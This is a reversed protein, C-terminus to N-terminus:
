GSKLQSYLINLIEQSAVSASQQNAGNFNNNQNIVVNINKNSNSNNTTNQMYDIGDFPKLQPGYLQNDFFSQKGKANEQAIRLANQKNLYNKRLNWIDETYLWDRGQIKRTWSARNELDQMKEILNYDKDKKGEKMLMYDKYNKIYFQKDQERTGRALNDMVDYNFTDDLEEAVDKIGKAVSFVIKQIMGFIQGISEGFNRMEQIIEKREDETYEKQIEDIADGLGKYLGAVAEYYGRTILLSQDGFKIQFQQKMTQSKQMSKETTDMIINYAADIYDSPLYQGNKIPKRRQFKAYLDEIEDLDRVVKMTEEMAYQGILPNAVSMIEGTKKRYNSLAKFFVRFAEDGSKLMTNKFIQRDLGIKEFAKGMGTIRRGTDEDVGKDIRTYLRRFLLGAREATTGTNLIQTIISTAYDPTTNTTSLIGSARKLAFLIDKVQAKGHTHHSYAIKIGQDQLWDLKEQATMNTNELFNNHLVALSDIAESATTDYAISMKEALKVSGAIMDKEHFTQAALKLAPALDSTIDKGVAVKSIEFLEKRIQKTDLDPRVKKIDAVAYEFERAQKTANIFGTILMKFMGVASHFGLMTATTNQLVRMFNSTKHQTREVADGAKKADKEFREWADAQYKFTIWCLFEEGIIM